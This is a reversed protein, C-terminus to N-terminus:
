ELGKKVLDEYGSEGAFGIKREVEKGDKFLIVTPISMVGYQGATQQNEDVNVKAILAKDKYTDALKDLIPAAMKCPGCWDAYFDVLVPKNNKLVQQEFQDDTIHTAPMAIEIYCLKPFNCLNVQM